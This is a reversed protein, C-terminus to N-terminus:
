LLPVSENDEGGHHFFYCQAPTFGVDHCQRTFREDRAKYDTPAPLYRWALVVISLVVLIIAIVLHNITM